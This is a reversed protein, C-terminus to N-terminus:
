AWALTGFIVAVPHEGLSVCVCRMGEFFDFYFFNAKLKRLHSEPKISHPRLNVILLTIPFTNAPFSRKFEIEPHSPSTQLAQLRM